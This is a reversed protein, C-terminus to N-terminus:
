SRLTAVRSVKSLLQLDENLKRSPNIASEITDLFRDMSPLKRATEMLRGLLFIGAFFPPMNVGAAYAGLGSGVDLWQISRDRRDKALGYDFLEQLIREVEVQRESEPLNALRGILSRAKRRDSPLSTYELVDRLSARKDFDVLPVPPLVVARGEAKIRENEAWAAAIRSNFSRYFNLRDGFLQMPGLWSNVYDKGTGHPIYTANLVHAFHIAQGFTDAEILVEKGRIRKFTEAFHSGQNIGMLGMGGLKLFPLFSARRLCTPYLISQALEHIPVSLEEAMVPIINRLSGLNEPRGLIYEDATEVADAIILGALRRRGFVAAPNAEQAERIFGLDSREEPQSFVLRLRGAEILQLLETPGVSQSKWFEEGLDREAFPPELFITDYALLAQRIDINPFATGHIFCSIGANETVSFSSPPIRGAYIENLNDFWWQEDSSIFDPVKGREKLPRINLVDSAPSAAKMGYTISLIYGPFVGGLFRKVADSLSSTLPQEFQILLENDGGPRADVLTPSLPFKGAIITDLDAVTLPLGSFSAALDCDRITDVECSSEPISNTLVVNDTIQSVSTDFERGHLEVDLQDRPVFIVHDDVALEFIRSEIHPYKVRLM